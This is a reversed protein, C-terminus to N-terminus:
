NWEGLRRIGEPVDAWDIFTVARDDIYAVAPPKKNTVEDVYGDLGYTALWDWIEKVQEDSRARASLVVVKYENHLRELALSTGNVPRDYITGDHFGKSYAHIVGDFDVCITPKAM